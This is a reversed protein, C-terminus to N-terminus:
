QVVKARIHIKVKQMLGRSRHLSGGIHFIIRNSNDVSINGNSIQNGNEIPAPSPSHTSHNNANKDQLQLSPSTPASGSEERGPLNINSNFGAFLILWFFVCHLDTCTM